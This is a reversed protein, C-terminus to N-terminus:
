IFHPHIETPQEGTVTRGFSDSRGTFTLEELLDAGKM